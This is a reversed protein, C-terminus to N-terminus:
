ILLIAQKRYSIEYHNDSLEKLFILCEQNPNNETMMSFFEKVKFTGCRIKKQHESSRMNVEKFIDSIDKATVTKNGTEYIAKLFYEIQIIRPLRKFEDTILEKLIEERLLGM